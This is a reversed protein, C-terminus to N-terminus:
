FYIPTYLFLNILIISSIIIFTIYIM